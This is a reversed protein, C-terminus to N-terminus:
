SRLGHWPALHPASQLLTGPARSYFKAMSTTGHGATGQSAPVLMVRGSRVRKIERERIGLEVPNREDDAANVGSRSGADAFRVDRGAAPARFACVRRRALVAACQHGVAAPRVRQRLPRRERRQGLRRVTARMWGKFKGSDLATIAPQLSSIFCHDQSANGYEIADVTQASVPSALSLLVAFLPASEPILSSLCM